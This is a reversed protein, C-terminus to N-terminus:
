AGCAATVPEAIKSEAVMPQAIVPEALHRHSVIISIPDLATEILYWYIYM